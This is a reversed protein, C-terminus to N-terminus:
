NPGCHRRGTKLLRLGTPIRRRPRAAVAIAVARAARGSLADIERLEADIEVKRREATEVAQEAETKGLVIEGGIIRVLGGAAEFEADSVEMEPRDIGDMQRMAELSAHHVAGGNKRAIYVMMVGRRMAATLSYGM